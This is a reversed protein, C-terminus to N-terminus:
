WLPQLQWVRLWAARPQLRGCLHRPLHHQGPLQCGPGLLCLLCPKWDAGLGLCSPKAPQLAWDAWDAAATPPGRTITIALQPSRAWRIARILWPVQWRSGSVLALSLLVVAGTSWRAMDHQPVTSCALQWLVYSGVCRGPKLRPPPITPGRRSQAGAPTQPVCVQGAGLLARKM